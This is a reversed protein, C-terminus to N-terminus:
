SNGNQVEMHVLELYRDNNLKFYKVITDPLICLDMTQLDMDEKVRNVGLKVLFNYFDDSVKIPRKNKGM